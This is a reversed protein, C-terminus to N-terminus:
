DMEKAFDECYPTDRMRLSKDMSTPLKMWAM